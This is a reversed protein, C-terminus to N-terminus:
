AAPAEAAAAPVLYVNITMGMMNMAYILGGQDNLEVTTIGDTVGSLDVGASEAASLDIPITLKGDAFTSDYTMVAEEADASSKTSVTMKGPEITLRVSFGDMGAASFMDQTMYIGMVEAASIEWEGLFADESEAAVAVPRASAVPAEQTFVAVQDSVTMTLKGDALVAEQPQDDITITVTDGNLVWTGDANQTEGMMEMTNLASGDENLVLTWVMGMDAPNVTVGNATMETLYWTGAAGDAMAPVLLCAMCLILILSIMKKM